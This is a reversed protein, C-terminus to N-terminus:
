AEIWRKITTDTAHTHSPARTVDHHSASSTPPTASASPDTRSTALRDDRRNAPMEFGITHRHENERTNSANL